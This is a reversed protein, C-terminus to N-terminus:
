EELSEGPISGGAVILALLDIAQAPNKLIGSHTKLANVEPVSLHKVVLQGHFKIVLFNDLHMIADNQDSISDLITAISSANIAAVEARQKNVLADAAWEEAYRYAEGAKQKSVKRAQEGGEGTWWAKFRTWLSGDDVELIKVEGYGLDSLYDIVAKTSAVAGLGTTKELYFHAYIPEVNQQQPKPAGASRTQSTPAPTERPDFVQFIGDGRNKLRVKGLGRVNVELEPVENLARVYRGTKGSRFAGTGKGKKARASKSGLKRSEGWKPM